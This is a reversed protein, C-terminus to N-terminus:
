KQRSKSLLRGEYIVQYFCNDIGRVITECNPCKAERNVRNFYFPEIKIIKMKTNCIHCKM